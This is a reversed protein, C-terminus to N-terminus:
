IYDDTSEIKRGCFPFRGADASGFTFRQQVWNMLEDMKENGAWILDDVHSRVMGCTRGEDSLCVAPDIETLGQELLERRLELWFGRPADKTGYVSLLAILYTMPAINNGEETPIGDKPAMLILTRQSPAGQLFAVSIDGSKLELNNTAAYSLM